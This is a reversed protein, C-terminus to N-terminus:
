KSYDKILTKVTSIVTEIEKEAMSPYFPLSINREFVYETNPFDGRQYDYNERYYKHYHIPIFHVSSGIGNEELKEIFEDRNIDLVDLDLLVIYLHWAHRIDDKVHPIQIGDIEKFAENYKQAIKKRKMQMDDLKKLQEIGMAANIDPMNYKFGPTVVDYYWSAGKKSYRDYVDKSIGHLTNIKIKEALEDNNTTVMGGEGTCLNKTAYFSFAAGDTFSGIMEDDYKSWVAHAADEFVYLDHEKAIEMIENMKCAQGAMHVPMIAKTNKTIKNKIDEVDINFTKPNIDALIATAGTEEIVNVTSVFTMSTTIVEDGEGIGASVLLLHLGATCSNVALSHKVGIFDSFREQFEKVKKGTTLWGSEISETVSEVEEKGMNPRYFPIYDSM